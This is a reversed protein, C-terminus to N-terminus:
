SIKEISVIDNEYYKRNYVVIKYGMKELIRELSSLISIDDSIGDINDLEESHSFFEEEKKSTLPEAHQKYEIM